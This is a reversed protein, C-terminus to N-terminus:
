RGSRAPSSRGRRRCPFTGRPLRLFDHTVVVLPAVLEAGLFIVHAALFAGLGRKRTLVIGVVRGPFIAALTAALQQEVGAVLVIRARAPRREVARRGVAHDAVLLIRTQSHVADLDHAVLAAAM